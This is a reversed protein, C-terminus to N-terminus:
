LRRRISMSGPDGKGPGKMSQTIKISKTSGMLIIDFQIYAYSGNDWASKLLEAFLIM